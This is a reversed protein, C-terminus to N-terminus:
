FRAKWIHQINPKIKENPTTKDSTSKVNNPCSAFREIQDRTSKPNGLEKIYAPM